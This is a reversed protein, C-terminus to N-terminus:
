KTGIPTNTARNKPTHATVIEWPAMASERHIASAPGVPIRRAAKRATTIAMARAVADKTTTSKIRDVLLRPVKSGSVPRGFPNPM